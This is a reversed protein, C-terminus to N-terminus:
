IRNERHEWLFMKTSIDFCKNLRKNFKRMKMRTNKSFTNLLYEDIDKFKRLEILYGPYQESKLIGINKPTNPRYLQITLFMM